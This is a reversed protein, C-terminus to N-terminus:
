ATPVTGAETTIEGPSHHQPSLGASLVPFQPIATVECTVQPVCGPLGQSEQREM